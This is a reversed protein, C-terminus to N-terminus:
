ISNKIFFNSKSMTVSSTDSCVGVLACAIVGALASSRRRWILFVGMFLLAILGRAKAPPLTDGDLMQNIFDGDFM